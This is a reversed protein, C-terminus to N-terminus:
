DLAGLNDYFPLLYEMHKRYRENNFTHYRFANDGSAMFSEFTADERKGAKVLPLVVTASVLGYFARFKWEDLLQSKSPIKESSYNLKRLTNSFKYYYHDLITDLHQHRIEIHPSTAWFYQLDTGPSSYIAMQYDILKCDLIDGTDSYSFLFNTIWCDGHNLVNFGGIERELSSAARECVKDQILKLKTSYKEFGKWNATAEILGELARKIWATTLENKSFLGKYFNKYSEPNKEYLIMSSAHMYAIREIACLCHDLDLGELRNVTKYGLESLDELMIIDYPTNTYNIFKCSFSPLGSINYLSPLISSYIEKEVKFTQLQRSLEFVQERDDVICKVILSISTKRNELYFTVLCRFINSTYNEGIPVVMSRKYSLIDIEDNKFYKKLATRFLEQWNLASM